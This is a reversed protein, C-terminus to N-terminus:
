HTAPGPTGAPREPTGLQGTRALTGCAKPLKDAALNVGRGLATVFICAHGLSTTMEPPLHAGLTDITQLMGIVAGTSYAAAEVISATKDARRTSEAATAIAFVSARAAKIVSVGNDWPRMQEAYYAVAAAEGKEKALAAYAPSGYVQAAHTRYLPAYIDDGRKVLTGLIQATSGAVRSGTGACGSTLIAVAMLSRLLRM